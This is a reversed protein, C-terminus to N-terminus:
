IDTALIHLLQKLQTETAHPQSSTNVQSELYPVHIFLTRERLSSNLLHFYLHNCVYGGASLSIEVPLNSSLLRDKIKELDLSSFLATPLKPEIAGRQPVIGNNDPQSSEIWNLAVRELSIRSRGAALGLCYIREFQDLDTRALVKEHAGYVVPLLQTEFVSYLQPDQQVWELMLQTPNLNDEGFPEFGTILFKSSM